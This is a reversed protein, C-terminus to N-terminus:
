GPVSSRGRWRTASRTSSLAAPRRSFRSRERLTVQSPSRTSRSGTMDWYLLRERAAELLSRARGIAEPYAGGRAATRPVGDRGSSRQTTVLQPSYIEFLVDGETVTEGVNNVSAARDLGRVQDAGLRRTGRQAGPDRRHPHLRPPHRPAGHRHPGRLEAPLEPQGSAATPPQMTAYVPVLDMGMPSKGPRDSTYNPDMPARWYLIEREGTADAPPDQGTMTMGEHARRRAGPWGRAKTRGTGCCCCRGGAGIAVGIVVFLLKHVNKTGNM